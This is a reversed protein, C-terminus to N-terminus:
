QGFKTFFSFIDPKIFSRFIEHVSAKYSLQVARAHRKGPKLFTAIYRPKRWLPPDTGESLPLPPPATEFCKKEARGAETQDLFLPPPAPDKPGM